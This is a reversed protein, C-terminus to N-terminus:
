DICEGKSNTECNHVLTNGVFDQLGQSIQDNLTPKDGDKLCAATMFIPNFVGYFASSAVNCGWTVSDIFFNAEEIVSPEICEDGKSCVIQDDAFNEYFDAGLLNTKMRYSGGKRRNISKIEYVHNHFGDEDWHTLSANPKSDFFIADFENVLDKMSMQGTLRDPRDTFATVKSTNKQDFFFNLNGKRGERAKVNSAGFSFLWTPEDSVDNTARSM